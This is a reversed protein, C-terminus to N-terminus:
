SKQQAALAREALFPGISFEMSAELLKQVTPLDYEFDQAEPLLWRGPEYIQMPVETGDANQKYLSCCSLLHDQIQRFVEPEGVRGLQFQTYIWSSKLASMLGVRFRRSGIEVDKYKQLAM